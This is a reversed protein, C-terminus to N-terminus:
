VNFTVYSKLTGDLSYVASKAPQEIGNAEYIEFLKDCADNCTYKRGKPLIKGCHECKEANLLRDFMFNFEEQTSM